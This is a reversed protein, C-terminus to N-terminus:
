FNYRISLQGSIGLSKASDGALAIGKADIVFGAQQATVGLGAKLLNRSDYASLQSVNIDYLTGMSETQPNGLMHEYSLMVGPVVTWASLQRKDLGVDLDVVISSSMNDLRTLDLALESGTEEFAALSVNTVRFRTQATITFPAVRMVYGAGAMGSYSAGETDGTATGLGSGLLRKSRYDIWGTNARAMVYPGAELTSIGYRGGIAGMISAVSASADASAVRGSNHGINAYAATRHDIRATAGAVTGISRESSDAIGIGGTSNFGDARGTLWVRGQGNYLDRGSTYPAIADDIWLPQRMLYAVSDAHIQGGVRAEVGGLTGIDIASQLYYNYATYHGSLPSNQLQNLFVAGALTNGSYGSQGPLESYYVMKARLVYIDEQTLGIGNMLYANVSGYTSYIEYFGAMLYESKVGWVADVVDPDFLAMEKVDQITASLYQNSALYDQMITEQPVGAISQLLMSTWGTRDKGGSCHYLAADPESALYLLATRFANRQDSVTVFNRYISEMSAMAASLNTTDPSPPPDQAYINVNVHNVTEPVEQGYWDPGNNDIPPYPTGETESPTRLDVVRGIGLGLLTTFDAESLTTLAESRYFVGTRMAGGHSTTNAYGTGGYQEAIGALDRFNGDSNLIPTNIQQQAIAGLVVSFCFAAASGCFLVSKALVTKLGRM